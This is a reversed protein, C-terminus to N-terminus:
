LDLELEDKIRNALELVFENVGINGHLEKLLKLNKKDLKIQINYIPINDKPRFDEDVVIYKIIESMASM